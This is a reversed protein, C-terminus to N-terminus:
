KAVDLYTTAGGLNTMVAKCDFLGPCFYESAFTKLCKSKQQTDLIM